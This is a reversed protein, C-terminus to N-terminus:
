KIKWYDPQGAKQTAAGALLGMLFFPACVFSLLVAESAPHDARSLKRFLSDNENIKDDVFGLALAGAIAGATSVTSPSVMKGGGLFGNRGSPVQFGGM